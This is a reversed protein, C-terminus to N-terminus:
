SLNDGENPELGWGNMCSIREACMVTDVLEGNVYVDMRDCVFHGGSNNNDLYNDLQVENNFTYECADKYDEEDNFYCWGVVYNKTSVEEKCILIYGMDECFQNVEKDSMLDPEWVEYDKDSDTWFKHIFDTM